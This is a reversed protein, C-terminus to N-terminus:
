KKRYELPSIGHKNRFVRNFYSVNNFGSELAIDLIKKSTQRLLIEAKELRLRNCYEHFSIGVQKFFLRGMYKENKGYLQSLSRLSINVGISDQAQRKMGQVLWHLDSPEKPSNEFTRKLYDGIIEAIKFPFTADQTHECTSLLASLPGSPIGTMLVARELRKQTITKDAIVNGVYVVAGVEGNLIVPYACEYIGFFCHGSFPKKEQIAKKNALMKCKLCLKSGSKTKKAELCFPKSHIINKASIKTLPTNLMGAVDLISIHLDRQYLILDILTQLTQM